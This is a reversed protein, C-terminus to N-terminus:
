QFAPESIDCFYCKFYSEAIGRIKGLTELLLEAARGGVIMMAGSQLLSDAWGGAPVGPNITEEAHSTASGCRWINDYRCLGIFWRNDLKPLSTETIL